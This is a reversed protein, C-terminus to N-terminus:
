PGTAQLSPLVRERMALFPREVLHSLAVGGAISVTLFALRDLWLSIHTGLVPQLAALTLQRMSEVGPFGFLIAHFLYVTYSYVGLSALM